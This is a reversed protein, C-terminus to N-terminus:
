TLYSDVGRCALTRVQKSRVFNVADGVTQFSQFTCFINWVNIWFNMENKNNLIPNNATFIDVILIVVYSITQIEVICKVSGTMVHDFSNEHFRSWFLDSIM